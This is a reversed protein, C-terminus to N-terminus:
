QVPDSDGPREVPPNNPQGVPKHNRDKPWGQRSSQIALAKTTSQYEKSDPGMVKVDFKAVAM